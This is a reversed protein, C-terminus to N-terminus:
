RKKRKSKKRGSFFSSRSDFTLGRKEKKMDKM